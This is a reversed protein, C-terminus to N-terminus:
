VLNVSNRFHLAAPNKIKLCPVFTCGKRSDQYNNERRKPLIKSARIKLLVISMFSLDSVTYEKNSRNTLETYGYLDNIKREEEIEKKIRNTNKEELEIRLEELLQLTEENTLGYNNLRITEQINM